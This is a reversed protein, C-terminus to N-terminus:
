DKKSKNNIWLFLKLNRVQDFGGPRLREYSQGPRDGRAVCFPGVGGTPRRANCGGDWNVAYRGHDPKCRCWRDDGGAVCCIPQRRLRPRGCCIFWKFAGSGSVATCWLLILILFGLNRLASVPQCFSAPNCATETMAVAPLAWWWPCFFVYMLLM